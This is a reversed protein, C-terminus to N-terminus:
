EGEGTENEIEAMIEEDPLALLAEDEMKYQELMYCFDAHWSLWVEDGWTIMKEDLMYRNHLRKAEILYENVRVWYKTHYGMYIIEEVVGKVSNYKDSLEPKQLTITFKEPRISLYVRDGTKIKKDNYVIVDTFDEIRLKSYPEKVEIVNGEFFNTDGIFAAVFSTRPAEYIETPTGVQEVIGDNMVAINDSLSMAESQDHTVYLFTIGVEDHINDLDVLMRQRLKLDLAALPEDLLLVKPRNILARAIAVRQKQGGSLKDPKKRAHDTLQILELYKYVEDKLENEKIGSIRLGFAINEFVSLNPFLAYNQFVTNVQRKNPSQSTIDEGNLIIRGSDPEELGACIRLLTTKGCGSPGLLSFIEGKKVTLSVNDLVKNNGFSKSIGDFILFDDM